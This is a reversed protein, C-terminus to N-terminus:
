SVNSEDGMDLTTGVHARYRNRGDPNQSYYSVIPQGPGGQSKNDVTYTGDVGVDWTGLSAHGWDAMDWTYDLNYDVGNLSQWGINRIAGDAIFSINSAISAPLTSYPNTLLAQVHQAFLPDNATTLFSPTYIPNDLFGNSVGALGYYGQLKQSIRIYWYTM